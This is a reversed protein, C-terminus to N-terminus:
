LPKYAVKIVDSDFDWNTPYTITVEKFQSILTKLDSPLKTKISSYDYDLRQIKSWTNYNIYTYSGIYVLHNENTRVCGQHYKTVLHGNIPIVCGGLRFWRKGIWPKSSLQTVKLIIKEGIYFPIPHRHFFGVHETIYPEISIELKANIKRM